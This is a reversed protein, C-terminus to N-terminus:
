RRLQGKITEFERRPISLLAHVATLLLQVLLGRVGKTVAAAAILYYFHLEMNLSYGKATVVGVVVCACFM